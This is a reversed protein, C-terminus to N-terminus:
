RASSCHSRWHAAAGYFPPLGFSGFRVAVANSGGLLVFLLFAVLTKRDPRAAQLLSSASGKAQM